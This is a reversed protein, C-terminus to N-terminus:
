PRCIRGIVETEVHGDINFGSVFLHGSAGTYFGTGGLIQQHATIAGTEAHGTAPHSVGTERTFIAGHATTYQFLGSYMLWGPTATPPPTSQVGDARFHTTGNLGFGRVEGLFCSPEGPNCGETVRDETLEALVPWCTAGDEALGPQPNAGAPRAFSAPVLALLCLTLLTRTM